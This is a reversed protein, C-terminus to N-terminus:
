PSTAMESENQNPLQKKDEIKKQPKDQKEENDESNIVKDSPIPSVKATARKGLLKINILDM